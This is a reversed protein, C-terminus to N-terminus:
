GMASIQNQLRKIDLLLQSHELHKSENSWHLGHADEFAFKFKLDDALSTKVAIVDKLDLLSLSKKPQKIKTLHQHEANSAELLGNFEKKSISGPSGGVSESESYAESQTSLTSMGQCKNVPNSVPPNKKRLRSEQQKIRFYERREDANMKSRYKEGNLIKWGGDVDEIRRGDFIKTRSYPDPSRLKVLADECEQVSVRAMDALGPVSGEVIHDQNKLALMTVWVIRVTHSECWITSTIITQFLKTYGTMILLIM